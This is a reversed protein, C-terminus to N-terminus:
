TAAYIYTRSREKFESEVDNGDNLCQLIQRKM